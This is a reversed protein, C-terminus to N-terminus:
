RSATAFWERSSRAVLLGMGVAPGAAFVLACFVLLPVADDAEPVDGLLGVIRVVWYLALLLQAGLAVLLAWWTGRDRRNLALVGAVLLAVVSAFQLWALVQAEDAIDAARPDVYADTDLEIGLVVSAFLLLYASTFAVLAAQVLALVAATIVQGPRRPGRPPPAPWGGPAGYAPPPPWGYGPQGYGPQGYGPQGYGPQGYGPVPYPATGYAPPGSYPAGQETPSDPDSWPDRPATM